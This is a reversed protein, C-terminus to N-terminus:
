EPHADGHSIVVIVTVWIQHYETVVTRDEVMVVAVSGERINGLPGADRVFAFPRRAGGPEIIVPVAFEIERDGIVHCPRRIVVDPAAVLLRPVPSVAVGILKAPLLRRKVSVVAVAGEGIDSFSGLDPRMGAATQANDCKVEVVVAPLVDEDGIVGVRVKEETVIVVPAEAFYRKLAADGDAFVALGLRSHSSVGGINVSVAPQVNEDRVEIKLVGTEISIQAVPRKFVGRERGFEAVGSEPIAAEAREENIVVVIPRTVDEHGIPM